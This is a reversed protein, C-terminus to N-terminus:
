PSSELIVRMGVMKDVGAMGDMEVMMDGLLGEDGLEGGMEWMRCWCPVTINVVPNAEVGAVLWMQEMNPAVGFHCGGGGVSKTFDMRIGAGAKDVVPM